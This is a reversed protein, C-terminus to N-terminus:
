KKKLKNMVHWQYTFQIYNKTQSECYYYDVPQSMMMLENNTPWHGCGNENDHKDDNYYQTSCKKKSQDILRDIVNSHSNAPKTM